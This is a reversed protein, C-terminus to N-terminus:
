WGARSSRLQDARPRRATMGRNRTVSRTAGFTPVIASHNGPGGAVVVMVDEPARAIGVTDHPSRGSFRM